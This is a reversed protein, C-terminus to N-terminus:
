GSVQRCAPDLMSTIATQQSNYLESNKLEELCRKISPSTETDTGAPQSSSPFITDLDLHDVAYHMSRMQIRSLLFRIYVRNLSSASHTRLLVHTLTHTHTGIHILTHILTHYHTHALTHSLTVTYCQTHIHLLTHVSTNSPEVTRLQTHTCSPTLLLTHTHSPTLTHSSTLAYCHSYTSLLLHTQQSKTVFEQFNCLMWTCVDCVDMCVCGCGCVGWGSVWVGVCVCM